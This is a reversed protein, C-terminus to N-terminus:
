CMISIVPICLGAITDSIKVTDLLLLLELVRGATDVPLLVSGGTALVKILSDAYVMIANSFLVAGHSPHM